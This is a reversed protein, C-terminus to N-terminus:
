RGMAGMLESIDIEEEEEVDFKKGVLGFVKAKVKGKIGVKVKKKGLLGMVNSMLKSSIDSPNAKLVLDYEKQTKKEIVVDNAMKAKGVKSGDVFLDFDSKKIRINYTNPNNVEMKVVLDVNSTSLNQVDYDGIKIIDVEQYPTCSILAVLIAGIFTISLKNM